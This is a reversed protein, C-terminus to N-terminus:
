RFCGGLGILSIDTRRPTGEQIGIQELPMLPRRSFLVHELVLYAERPFSYRNPSSISAGPFNIDTRHFFLPEQFIPIHELVLYPNKTKKERRVSLGKNFFRTQEIFGGPFNTDTRLVYYVRRSFFMDTRRVSLDEQNSRYFLFM